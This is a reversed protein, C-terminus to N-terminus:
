IQFDVRGSNEHLGCERKLGNFRTQEETMGDLLKTTSHWDGISVYGQDWLPHYPLGHETLYRHVQRNDWDLIPHIKAVKNQRQVVPLSERSSGQSRRLGALWATAGLDRVARDMPEVKNIFNYRKLGEIGQEWLRGNLAEQEAATSAPVYKKLNLKLRETLDRAFRYTDPFLYGTDIFVVPIEPVVQTVLHLMVAAQVGFSTTLILGSGYTEAAWRVREEASAADLFSLDDVAAAIETPM